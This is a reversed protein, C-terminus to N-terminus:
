GPLGLAGRNSSAVRSAVPKSVEYRAIRPNDLLLMTVSLAKRPGVPLVVGIM